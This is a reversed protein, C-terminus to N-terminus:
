TKYGRFSKPLLSDSASSLNIPAIPAHMLLRRDDQRLFGSRRSQGRGHPM